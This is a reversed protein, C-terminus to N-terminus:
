RSASRGSSHTIASVSNQGFKQPQGLGAPRADRYDVATDGVAGKGAVLPQPEPKRFHQCIDIQKQRLSIFIPSPQNCDARVVALTVTPPCSSTRRPEAQPAPSQRCGARLTEILGRRASEPIRCCARLRPARRQERRKVINQRRIGLRHMTRAGRCGSRKQPPRLMPPAVQSEAHPSPRQPATSASAPPTNRSSLM